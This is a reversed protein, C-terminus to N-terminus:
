ALTFKGCNAFTARGQGPTRGHFGGIRHDRLYLIIQPVPAGESIGQANFASHQKVESTEGVLGAMVARQGAIQRYAPRAERNLRISKVPRATNLHKDAKRTITLYKIRLGLYRGPMEKSWRM